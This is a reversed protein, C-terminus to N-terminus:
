KTHHIQNKLANERRNHHGNEEWLLATLSCRWKLFSVVTTDEHQEEGSFPLLLEKAKSQYEEPGPLEFMNLASTLSLNAAHWPQWCKAPVTHCQWHTLRPVLLSWSRGWGHSGSNGEGEEPHEAGRAGGPGLVAASASDGGQGGQGELLSCLCLAVARTVSTKKRLKDPCIEATSLVVM